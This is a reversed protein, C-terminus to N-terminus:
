AYVELIDKQELQRNNTLIFTPKSRGHDKVIIQRFAKECGKMNVESENVSVKRYKRKPISVEVKRWDSKPLSEANKVLSANRKRLTVFKVGDADLEGLVGYATFKCDFVLTEDVNGKKQKWYAVFKKVEECEEKRLIDARVYVVANSEADRVVVTNAQKMTKGKPGCWVKEM